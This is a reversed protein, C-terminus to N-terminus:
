VPTNPTDSKICVERIDVEIDKHLKLFHKRAGYRTIMTSGCEMCKFRFGEHKFKKHRLLLRITKFVEKCIDCKNVNGVNEYVEVDEGPHFKETHQICATRGVFNKACKSCQFKKEISENKV